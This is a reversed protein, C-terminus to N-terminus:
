IGVFGRTLVSLSLWRTLPGSVSILDACGSKPGRKQDGQFNNLESFETKTNDSIKHSKTLM